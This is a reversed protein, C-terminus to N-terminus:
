ASRSIARIAPTEVIRVRTGGDVPALEIAVTSSEGITSGFGAGRHERWRWRLLRYPEVEEVVGRRESGDPFRFRVAEGVRPELWADAGFWASLAAPDVMFGWVDTAPAEITQEHVEERM